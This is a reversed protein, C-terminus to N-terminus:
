QWDGIATAYELLKEEHAQQSNVEVSSQTESAESIQESEEETKSGDPDVGCAWIAKEM